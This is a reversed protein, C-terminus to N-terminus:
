AKEPAKHLSGVSYTPVTKKHRSAIATRDTTANQSVQRLQSLHPLPHLGRSDKVRRVLSAASKSRPRVAASLTHPRCVACTTGLRAGSPPDTAHDKRGSVPQFRLPQNREMLVQGPHGSVVVVLSASRVLSIQAELCDRPPRLVCLPNRNGPGSDRLDGIINGYEDRGGTRILHHTYPRAVSWHFRHELCDRPPTEKPTTSTTEPCGPCTRM